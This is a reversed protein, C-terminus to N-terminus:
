HATFAHRIWEIRPRDGDIGEIAIVDFRIQGSNWAPHRMLYHRTALMIRRQKHVDVSERASVLSGARRARVEVIVLCDDDTCILDLEGLRCRYGREIIALGQEALYRAAHAEWSQGIALTGPPKTM